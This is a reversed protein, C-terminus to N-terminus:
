YCRILISMHQHTPNQVKLWIRLSCFIYFIFYSLYKLLHNIAASTRRKQLLKGRRISKNYLQTVIHGVAVAM